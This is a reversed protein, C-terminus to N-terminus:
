IPVQVLCTPVNGRSQNDRSASGLGKGWLAKERKGDDSDMEGQEVFETLKWFDQLAASKMEGRVPIQPTAAPHGPHPDRPDCLGPRSGLACRGPPEAASSM